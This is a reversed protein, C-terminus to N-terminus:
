GKGMNFKYKKLSVYNIRELRTMNIREIIFASKASSGVTCLRCLKTYILHFGGVTMLFKRREVVFGIAPLNALPLKGQLEMWIISACSCDAQLRWSGISRCAATACVIAASEEFDSGHFSM